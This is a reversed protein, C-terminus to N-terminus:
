PAQKEQERQLLAVIVDLSTKAQVIAEKAQNLNSNGNDEAKGNDAEEKSFNNVSDFDAAGAAYSLASARSIAQLFSELAACYYYYLSLPKICVCALYYSENREAEDACDLIGVNPSQPSVQWTRTWPKQM